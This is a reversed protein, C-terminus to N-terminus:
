TTSANLSARKGRWWLYADVFGLLAGTAAGISVMAMDRNLFLAVLSGAFLGITVGLVLWMFLNFRDNVKQLRDCVFNWLCDRRDGTYLDIHVRLSCASCWCRRSWYGTVAPASFSWCLLNWNGPSPFSKSFDISV